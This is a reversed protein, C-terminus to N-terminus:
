KLHVLKGQLIQEKLHPYYKVLESMFYDYPIDPFHGYDHLYEMFQGGKKDFQQFIAHEKGNFELPAVHLLTCLEKNFVPTTKLWHGNLYIEAYGHFVLVNTQLVEELKATGIHNRVNAFGMRAPVGIARATATFLCSKEVCYGYNRSVLNSAKMAEKSFDLRYPDYRFGDRVAYYLAEIKENVTNLHDTQESVFKQIAPHDSDIFEAPKLYLDFNKQEM